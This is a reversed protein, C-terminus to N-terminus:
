LCTITHFSLIVTFHALLFSSSQFCCSSGRWISSLSRPQWSQFVCVCACLFVCLCMWSCYPRSARMDVWGCVCLWIYACMCVCVFFPKGKCHQKSLQLWWGLRVGWSLTAVVATKRHTLMSPAAGDVVCVPGLLLVLLDRVETQRVCALFPGGRTQDHGTLIAEPNASIMQNCEEIM